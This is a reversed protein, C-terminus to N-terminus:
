ASRWAFAALDSEGQWMQSGARVRIPTSGSLWMRNRWCQPRKRRFSFCTRWGRPLYSHITKNLAKTIETVTSTFKRGSVAAAVAEPPLEWQSVPNVHAAAAVADPVIIQLGINFPAGCSGIQQWIEGPLAYSPAPMPRTTLISRTSARVPPLWRARVLLSSVLTLVAQAVGLQAHSHQLLSDCQRVRQCANPIPAKNTLMFRGKVLNRASTLAYYRVWNRWWRQCRNKVKRTFRENNRDQM